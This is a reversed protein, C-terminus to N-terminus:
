RARQRHLRQGALDEAEVDPQDIERRDDAARDAVPDAPPRRHRRARQQHGGAVEGHREVRREESAGATGSGRRRRAGRCDRPAPRRAAVAGVVAAAVVAELQIIDPDVDAGEDRRDDAAEEARGLAPVEGEAKGADAHQDPEDDIKGALAM